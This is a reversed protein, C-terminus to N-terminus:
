GRRRGSKPQSLDIGAPAGARRWLNPQRRRWSKGAAAAFEAIYHNIWLRIEKKPPNPSPGWIKSM